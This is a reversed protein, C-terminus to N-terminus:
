NNHTHTTSNTLTALQLQGQMHEVCAMLGGGVHSGGRGGVCCRAERWNGKNVWLERMKCNIGYGFNEEEAIMCRHDCQALSPHISEDM